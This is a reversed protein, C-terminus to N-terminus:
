NWHVQLGIIPNIGAEKCSEYFSIAGHMVGEDTLALHQYGLQKAQEILAPIQITSRMLTYGSRIQLVTNPM